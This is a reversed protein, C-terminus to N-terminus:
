MAAARGVREKLLLLREREVLLKAQMDRQLLKRMVQLLSIPNAQQALMEMNMSRVVTQLTLQPSVQLRTRAVLILAVAEQIFSASYLRRSENRKTSMMSM